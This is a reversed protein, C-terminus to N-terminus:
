LTVGCFLWNQIFIIGKSVGGKYCGSEHVDDSTWRMMGLEREKRQNPSLKLAWRKILTEILVVGKFVVKDELNPSTEIVRRAALHDALESSFYMSISDNFISLNFRIQVWISSSWFKGRDYVLMILVWISKLWVKGRDYVLNLLDYIPLPLASRLCCQYANKTMLTNFKGPDWSIVMTSSKIKTAILIMLEGPDWQIFAHSGMIGLAFGVKMGELNWSQMLMEILTTPLLDNRDVLSSWLCVNIENGNNYRDVSPQMIHHIIIVLRTYEEVELVSMYERLKELPNMFLFIAFKSWCLCSFRDSAAVIRIILPIVGGSRFAYTHIGYVLHNVEHIGIGMFYMCHYGYLDVIREKNPSIIHVGKADSLWYPNLEFMLSFQYSLPVPSDFVGPYQPSIDIFSALISIDTLTFFNNHCVGNESARVQVDVFSNALVFEEKLFNTKSLIDWEFNVWVASEKCYQAQGMLILSIVLGGILPFVHIAIINVHHLDLPLHHKNPSMHSLLSSTHQGSSSVQVVRNNHLIFPVSKHMNGMLNLSIDVAYIVWKVWLTELDKGVLPSMFRMWEGSISNAATVLIIATMMEPQPRAVVCQTNDLKELPKFPSVQQQLLTAPKGADPPKSPPRPMGHHHNNLKPLRSPPQVRQSIAILPNISNLPPPPVMTADCAMQKENLLTRDELTFSSRSENMKQEKETTELREPIMTVMTESERDTEKIRIEELDDTFAEIMKLKPEDHTEETLYEAGFQRIMAMSFTKWDADPNEECWNYFWMMAQKDEMSMFAWQLKDRSPVENKEFFREAAAIWGVPDTGMFDTLQKKMIWVDEM